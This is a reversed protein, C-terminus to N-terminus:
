TAMRLKLTPDSRRDWNKCFNNAENDRYNYTAAADVLAAYYNTSSNNKDYTTIANAIPINKPPYLKEKDNIYADQAM